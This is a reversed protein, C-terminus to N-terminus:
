FISYLILNAGCNELRVVRFFLCKVSNTQEQRFENTDIFNRRCFKGWHITQKCTISPLLLYISLDMSYLNASGHNPCPMSVFVPLHLLVGPWSSMCPFPTLAGRTRLRAIPRLHITPKVCWINWWFYESPTLITPDWLLKPFHPPTSPIYKQETKSRFCHM